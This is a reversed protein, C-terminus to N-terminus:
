RRDLMERIKGALTAQAIPKQLLSVGADLRGQHVIANRSYGTMFLVRLGPQRRQMEDAFQRGNMGPMVVDTLLLDIASPDRTFDSLAVDANPARRIRYNLSELTEVLYDRVDPDDEVVMITEHGSSGVVARDTPTANELPRTSRPLYIKITTGLGEESYIKVHGGSQKVFGYVMSLGLGTGKGVRKTSFFPDFVKDRISEPIGVGTDSVAIMVYNGTQVDGNAAANEDFTVNGTELTLKGGEPMADRANIALNLLASSLQGPDVLATWVSDTLMSEIEIQAGLAPGFLRASEVILRNVDIERPQLPQKRAFALLHSTLEAGRDAAESILKAVAMAEPKESLEDALIEITGSIVTLV